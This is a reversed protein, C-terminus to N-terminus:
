TSLTENNTVNLEILKGTAVFVTRECINTVRDAMRELNHSTWMLHNASSIIAPNIRIMEILSRNIRDHYTDVEADLKPILRAAAEDVGVFASLAQELMDAACVAMRSLDDPFSIAPQRVIQMTMCAIGKAYDGIRELETNVDLISALMCLDIALPQQTAISILCDQEIQFHKENVRIDSSYIRQATEIDRQKLTEVAIVVAREVIAGLVLVDNLLKNIRRDLAKRPAKAAMIM